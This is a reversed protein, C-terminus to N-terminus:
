YLDCDPSWVRALGGTTQRQIESFAFVMQGVDLMDVRKYTNKGVCIRHHGSSVFEGQTTTVRYLNAKGKPFGGSTPSLQFKQDKENWSVVDDGFGVESIPRFGRATLIPTDERVCGYGGLFLSYKKQSALFQAQPINLEPYMVIPESM